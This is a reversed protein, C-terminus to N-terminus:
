PWPSRSSRPERRLYRLSLPIVPTQLEYFPSLPWPVATKVLYFVLAYGSIALRQAIRLTALSTMVSRSGSVLMVVSVAISVALFPLKEVLLRGAPAGRGSAAFSMRRLPYFDIALLALPLGVAISKSLLALAFCGVATHYWGTHLRAMAGRRYANLYALVTLLSFLGCLVDRRETVWAVSEVRLPHVGFVLAAFMAGVSLVADEDARGEVPPVAPLADASFATALLRRAVFYFLGANVTHLLLNGLHYGFPNMGDLVYNLGFSMWTVPIYHGLLMSTFMWKLQASGLGRYYPNGLLNVEDDWDLFGAHLVPLFALFTAAM